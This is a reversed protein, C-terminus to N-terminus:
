GLKQSKVGFGWKRKASEHRGNVDHDERSSPPRPHIRAPGLDKVLDTTQRHDFVHKSRSFPKLRSSRGDNDTMHGIGDNSTESSAWAYREYKLLRLESRAVGQQLSLM